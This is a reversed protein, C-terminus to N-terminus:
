IEDISPAEYMFYYGVIARDKEFGEYIQFFVVVDFM